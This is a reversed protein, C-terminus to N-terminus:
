GPRRCIIGAPSCAGDAGCWVCGGPTGTPGGLRRSNAFWEKRSRYGGPARKSGPAGIPQSLRHEITAVGAELSRLHALLGRRALAWQDHTAKSISGAWRESSEGTLERKRVAWRQADHELGDACRARLDRGALSGLHAGALRLVREDQATLGKLRDRVAVGSPGAVVFPAAFAGATAREGDTASQKMASVKLSKM